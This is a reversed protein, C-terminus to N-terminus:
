GCQRARAVATGGRRAVRRGVALVAFSFPRDGGWLRPRNALPPRAVVEDELPPEPAPRESPPRVGSCSLYRPIRRPIWEKQIMGASDQPVFPVPHRSRGARPFVGSTRRPSSGSRARPARASDASGEIATMGPLFLAALTIAAGLLGAGVLTARVGVAAAVPATLAFSIPLLGISILWDLSSVRGLM